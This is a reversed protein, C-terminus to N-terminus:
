FGNEIFAEVDSRKIRFRSGFKSGKLKGEKIYRTVTVGSVHLIDAVESTTLLQDEDPTEKYYSDSEDIFRDLVEKRIRIGGSSLRIYTIKEQRILTDLTGRSIHLYKAAEQATYLDSPLYINRRSGPLSISYM